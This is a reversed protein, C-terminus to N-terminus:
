SENETEEFDRLHANCGEAESAGGTRADDLSAALAQGDVLEGHARRGARVGDEKASRLISTFSGLM